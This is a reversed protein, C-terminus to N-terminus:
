RRHRVREPGVWEHWEEGHGVYHILTLEGRVDKTRAPWWEGGWEVELDYPAPDKRIYDQAQGTLPGDPRPPTRSEDFRRRQEADLWSRIQADYRRELERHRFAADGDIQLQERRRAELVAEIARKQEPTLEVGIQDVSMPRSKKSARGSREGIVFTPAEVSPAPTKAAPPAPSTSTSPPPSVAEEPAPPLPVAALRPPPAKLRAELADIKDNLREIRSLARASFVLLVAAFLLLIANGLKM